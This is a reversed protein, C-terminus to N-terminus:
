GDDFTLAVVKRTRDGHRVLRAAAVTPVDPCRGTPTRRAIEAPDVPGRAAVAEIPGPDPRPIATAGSAGPTATAAATASALPAQVSAPPSGLVASSSMSMAAVVALTIAARLGAAARRATSAAPPFAQAM